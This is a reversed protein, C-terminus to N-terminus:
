IRNHSFLLLVSILIQSTAAFQLLLISHEVRHWYALFSHPLSNLLSDDVCICYAPGRHRSEEWCKSWDAWSINMLKQVCAPWSTFKHLKHWVACYLQLEQQREFVEFYSPRCDTSNCSRMTNIEFWKTQFYQLSMQLYSYIGLSKFSLKM